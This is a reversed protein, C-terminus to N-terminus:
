HVQFYIQSSIFKVVWKVNCYFSFIAIFSCFLVSVNSINFQKLVNKDQSKLSTLMTINEFFSPVFWTIVCSEVAFRSSLNCKMIFLLFNRSIFQVIHIRYDPWFNSIDQEKWFWFAIKSNQRVPTLLWFIWPPILIPIPLFIGLFPNFFLVTFLPFDCMVNWWRKTCLYILYFIFLRSQPEIM